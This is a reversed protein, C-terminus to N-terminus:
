ITKEGQLLLFMVMPSIRINFRTMKPLGNRIRFDKSPNRCLTKIGKVTRIAFYLEANGGINSLGSICEGQKGVNFFEAQPWYIKLLFNDSHIKNFRPAFLSELSKSLFNFSYMEKPILFVGHLRISSQKTMFGNNYNNDQNQIKVVIDEQLDDEDIEYIKFKAPIHDTFNFFDGHKNCRNQYYDIFFKNKDNLKLKKVLDVLNKLPQDKEIVFEDIFKDKSYIQITCPKKYKRFELGLGLVYKM